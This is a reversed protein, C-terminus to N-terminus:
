STSPAATVSSSSLRRPSSPLRPTTPPSHHPTPPSHTTPPYHTTRPSHHTTLLPYHSTPLAYYATHYTSLPYHTTPLLKYHLPYNTIYSTAPLLDDLEGRLRFRVHLIPQAPQAMPARVTRGAPRRPRHPVHQLPNGRPHVARLVHAGGARTGGQPVQQHAAADQACAPHLPVTGHDAAM